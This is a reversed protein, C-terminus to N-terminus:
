LTEGMARRRNADSRSITFTTIAEIASSKKRQFHTYAQGDRLGMSTEEGASGILVWPAYKLWKNEDSGSVLVTDRKYYLLKFDYTTGAPPTPFIRFYDGTLAYHFKYSTQNSLLQADTWRSTMQRLDDSDYKCMLKEGGDPLQLWLADEEYEMIFDDPVLLREDNDTSTSVSRESLLFWPLPETPWSTEMQEQADQIAAIIVDDGSQRFGQDRKIIAVARDLDM